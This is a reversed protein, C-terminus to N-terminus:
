VLISNFANYNELDNPRCYIAFEITQFYDVFLPLVNEYAQAVIRPNNKFAGCGFAGLILADVDNAVAAAFIKKARKEHLALLEDDSIQVRIRDGTNYQNSPRERLNPAACSIIDVSFPESLLNHDDDKIVHVKPTYIIDDNHLTNGNKRHPTYFSARMKQDALCPYLTSVRCLCEEQASAGKEVGGGPNTASAFNLVATRKGIYQAAAEFSRLRSVIINAPKDAKPVNSISIIAPEPIFQQNHISYDIASMWEESQKIQAMTDEFVSALQQKRILYLNTPM